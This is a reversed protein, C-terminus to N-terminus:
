RARSVGDPGIVDSYDPKSSFSIPLQHKVVLEIVKMSNPHPEEDAAERYYLITGGTKSISSMQEDLEAVAVKRDDIMITGDALVKVKLMATAMPIASPDSSHDAKDACGALQLMAGLALSFMAISSFDTV